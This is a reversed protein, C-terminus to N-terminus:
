DYSYGAFFIEKAQGNDYVAIYIGQGREIDEFLEDGNDVMARTPHETGFYQRLLHAPVAAAVGYNPSAGAQALDLISRTGDALCRQITVAM